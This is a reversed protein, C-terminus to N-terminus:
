ELVPLSSAFDLVFVDRLAAAESYCLCVHM